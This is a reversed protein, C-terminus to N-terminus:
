KRLLLNIFFIKMKRYEGCPQGIAEIIGGIGRVIGVTGHFMLKLRTTTLQMGNYAADGGLV